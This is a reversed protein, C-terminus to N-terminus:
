VVSKRDGDDSTMGGFGVSVIKKYSAEKLINIIAKEVRNDM